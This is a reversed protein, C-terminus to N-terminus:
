RSRDAELIKAGNGSQPLRTGIKRMSNLRPAATLSRLVAVPAGRREIV